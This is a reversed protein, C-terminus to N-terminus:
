GVCFMCWFDKSAVDIIRPSQMLFDFVMCSIIISTPSLAREIKGKIKKRRRTDDKLLLQHQHYLKNIPKCKKNEPFNEHFRKHTPILCYIICGM